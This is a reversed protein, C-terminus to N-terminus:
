PTKVTMYSTSRSVGREQWTVIVNVTKANDLPHDMAVNVHCTYDGIPVEQDAPIDDLGFNGGDDDTGNKDADQGTGDGDDDDLWPHSYDLRLIDEILGQATATGETIAQAKANGQITTLQLRLIALLGIAFITIAVLIEVLTFGRNNKGDNNM